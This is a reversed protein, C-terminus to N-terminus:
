EAAPRSSGTVMQQLRAIGEATVRYKKRAQKTTGSKRTQIVLQPKASMLLDFCRTINSVGHGLHKLERNVDQADVDAAGQEVQFWYAVVLAKEYDTGCQASAFLSPLDRGQPVTDTQERDLAKAPAPAGIPAPKQPTGQKLGFKASVWNMVRSRAAEDLPTLATAITKLADIEALSDTQETMGFLMTETLHTDLAM